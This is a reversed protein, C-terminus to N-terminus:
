CQELEKIFQTVRKKLGRTQLYTIRLLPFGHEICYNDKILDHKQCRALKAEGDLTPLPKFHFAGDFEICAGHLPLYFDFPLPLVNRCNIFRHERIFEVGLDTLIKSISIVARSVRRIKKKRKPLPM